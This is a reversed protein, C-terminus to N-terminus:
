TATPTPMQQSAASDYITVYVVPVLVLAIIVGVPILVKALLEDSDHRHQKRARLVNAVALILSIVAYIFGGAWVAAILIGAWHTFLAQFPGFGPTINSFLDRM